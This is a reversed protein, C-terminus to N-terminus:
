FFERVNTNAITEGEEFVLLIPDNSNKHVYQFTGIRFVMPDEWFIFENQKLQKYIASNQNTTLVTSADYHISNGQIKGLLAHVGLQNEFIIVNRYNELNSLRQKGLLNYYQLLINLSQRGKEISSSCEFSCPFHSILSFGFYQALYNTFLPFPMQHKRNSNKLCLYAYEDEYDKLAVERYYHYFNRCCDPIRLMKGFTEHNYSAEAKKAILLEHYNKGIYVFFVGEKDKSVRVGRNHWTGKHKDLVEAVKFDSIFCFLELQEFVKKLKSYVELRSLYIRSVKLGAYAELIERFQIWTVLKSCTILPAIDKEKIM